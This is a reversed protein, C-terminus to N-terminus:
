GLPAFVRLSLSSGMHNGILLPDGILSNKQEGHIGPLKMDDLDVM